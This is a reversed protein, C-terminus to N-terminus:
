VEPRTMGRPIDGVTPIAQACAKILVDKAAKSMLRELWGQIRNWMRDKLYEFMKTKNRGVYVPLGLYRESRTVNGIQLEALVQQKQVAGTTKSFMVSSKDYNVSQGSCVEYLNLVNQLHIASERSAKMLVLCDDQRLGRQPVVVDTCEGNVKFKYSVTSICLMVLKIWREEFGLQYMMKELFDWEVKDYAKSMDLKVAAYGDKGTRKNKSILKYVVNCLSIPRLDKMSEPNLVKPILVVCTDNWGDPGPAKLDGISQLADVVEKETFAEGLLANMQPTVRPDVHGLLEETRTGAHSTFLNLFYNTVVDKMAGEEEVVTGDEKKLRRIKNRRKRESAAAHFFKTNRDGCKLWHVHARQRWYTERQEELRNLMFRLVEERRVQEPGINGRRCRELEKTRCIRKDLDGLINRSWDVLDTMVGRTVEAVKKDSGAMEREWKNRVLERCMEEELWRAEFRPELSRASGRRLKAAGQLEIIIPRHDSHRPDGNIVRFAPFRNCWTQMDVARDLREKIYRSADHSHNRWTFTDGVFGLDRLECVELAAKFRDM